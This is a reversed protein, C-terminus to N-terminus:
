RDRVGRYTRSGLAAYAEVQQTEFLRARLTPGIPTMYRFTTTESLSRRHYGTRRKWEKRGEATECDRVAQTRPHEDDWEVADKRPPTLLTGGRGHVSGYCGSQDYAGDGCADGVGQDDDLQDLLDPLMEGDAISVTTLQAVVVDHTNPDIGLHLRRWTRRKGVGHKRVKWEGEGFM